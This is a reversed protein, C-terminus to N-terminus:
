AEIKQPAYFNTVLSARRRADAPLVGSISFDMRLCRGEDSYRIDDALTSILFIGMGPEDAVPLDGYQKFDFGEGEDRVEFFFGGQTNGWSLHVSKQSDCRNGHVMANEVAQLVAVSITGYYNTLHNQDCIIGLLSELHSLCKTDSQIVASEM